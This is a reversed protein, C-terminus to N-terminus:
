IDVFVRKLQGVNRKKARIKSKQREGNIFVCQIEAGYEVAFLQTFYVKHMSPITIHRISHDGAACQLELFRVISLALWQDLM